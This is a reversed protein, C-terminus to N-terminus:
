NLEELGLDGGTKRGFVALGILPLLFWVSRAVDQLFVAQFLGPLHGIWDAPALFFVCSTLFGCELLGFVGAQWWPGRDRALNRLVASSWLVLFLLIFLGLFWCVQLAPVRGFGFAVSMRSILPTNTVVCFAVYLSLLIVMARDRGIAVGYGFGLLAFTVLFVVDSPLHWGGVFFPSSFPAMSALSILLWSKRSHGSGHM